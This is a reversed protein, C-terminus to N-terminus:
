TSSRRTASAVQARLACPPSRRDRPAATEGSAVSQIARAGKLPGSPCPSAAPSGYGIVRYFRNAHVSLLYRLCPTSLGPTTAYNLPGFPDSFATINCTGNSANFPFSALARVISGYLSANTYSVPSFFPSFAPTACPSGLECNAGFTGSVCSCTSDANCVGRGSCNNVGCNNIGQLVQTV